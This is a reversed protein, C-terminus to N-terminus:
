GGYKDCEERLAQLMSELSEGKDQLEAAMRNALADVQSPKPMKHGIVLMMPSEHSLPTGEYDGYAALITFGAERLLNALEEQSYLRYRLVFRQTGQPSVVDFVETVSSDEPQYRRTVDTYRAPGEFHDTPKLNKVTPDRGPVEVVFFGGPRLAAYVREVLRSNDGEESIQGLTTFLCIAADFEEDALFAEGSVQRFDPAVGAEASGSRAAEIMAPAPDIGVVQYGRRALEISHRGAGCGVDLVRAGPPLDLQALVFDIEGVTREPTLLPHKLFPSGDSFFNLRTM